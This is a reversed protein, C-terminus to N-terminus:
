RRSEQGRVTRGSVNSNFTYGATGGRCVVAFHNNKSCLIGYDPCEARAAEPMGVSVNM